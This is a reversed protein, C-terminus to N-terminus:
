YEMGLSLSFGLYAEEEYYYKAEAQTIFSEGIRYAFSGIGVLGLRLEQSDIPTDANANISFKYYVATMGGWIVLSSNRSEHLVGFPLAIHSITFFGSAPKETITQYYSPAQPSFSIELNIPPGDFLVGPGVMKLGYVPISEGVTENDVTEKFNAMGFNVGLSRTYLLEKRGTRQDNAQDFMPNDEQVKSKKGGRRQLKDKYQTVIEVDSVYGYKRKKYRVKYFSGFGSTSKYIKVSVRYKKEARLQGVVPADFNPRKYVAAGDSQVIATQSRWKKKSRRKKKAEAELTCAFVLVLSLLGAVFKRSLFDLSNVM